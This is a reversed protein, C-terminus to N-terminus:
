EDDFKMRGRRDSHRIEPEPDPDYGLVDEAYSNPSRTVEIDMELRDNRIFVTDPDGSGHGFRELNKEGVLTDREDKELIDNRENCLVDDEEFYTYEVNEYAANENREDIHIVYPRLPTRRRREQHWDWDEQKDDGYQEFANVVEPEAEVEEAPAEEEDEKAAEVVAAPPTVVMPPEDSYGQERIIDELKPKEVKNELAVAKDHYHQQMEAIEDAAIQSYKTELKTELHRKTLIYGLAGGLGAGIVFGGIGWSLGRSRVAEEVATKADATMLAESLAQASEGTAEVLEESM